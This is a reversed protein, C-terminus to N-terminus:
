WRERISLSTMPTVWCSRSLAYTPLACAQHESVGRVPCGHELPDLHQRGPCHQLKRAPSRVDGAPLCRGVRLRVGAGSLRLLNPHELRDHTSHVRDRRWGRRATRFTRICGALFAVHPGQRELSTPSESASTFSRLCAIYCIPLSRDAQITAVRLLCTPGGSANLIIGTYQM